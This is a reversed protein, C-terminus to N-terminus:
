PKGIYPTGPKNDQLNITPKTKGLQFFGEDKHEVDAAVIVGNDETGTKQSPICSAIRLDSFDPKTWVAGEFFLQEGILDGQIPAEVFLNILGTEPVVGVAVLKRDAGLRLTKGCIPKAGKDKDAMAIAVKSGPPAKILFESTHGLTMRDPLFMRPGGTLRDNLSVRAPRAEPANLQILGLADEDASGKADPAGNTGFPTKMTKFLNIPGYIEDESQAPVVALAAFLCFCGAALARSFGHRHINPFYM